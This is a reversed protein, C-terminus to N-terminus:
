RERRTVCLNATKYCSQESDVKQRKNDFYALVPASTILAKIKTLADDHQQLWCWEVDKHELQRLPECASSLHPLFKALYNVMGLLRKLSKIDTPQPMKKISEIKGPDAVLGQDTLLHGMFPVSSMRLQIKEANLTLSTQRARDLLARM